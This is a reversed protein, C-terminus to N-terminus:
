EYWGFKEDAWDQKKMMKWPVLDANMEFEANYVREDGHKEADWEQNKRTDIQTKTTVSYTKDSKETVSDRTDHCKHFEDFGDEEADFFECDDINVPEYPEYPDRTSAPTVNSRVTANHLAVTLQAVLETDSKEFSILEGAFDVRGHAGLMEMKNRLADSVDQWRYCQTGSLPFVRGNLLIRMKTKRLVHM